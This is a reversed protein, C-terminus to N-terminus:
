PHTLHFPPLKKLPLFLFRATVWLVFPAARVERASSPEGGRSRTDRESSACPIPVCCNGGDTRNLISDPHTGVHFEEPERAVVQFGQRRLVERNIPNLECCHLTYDERGLGAYLERVRRAVAGDGASPELIRLDPLLYQCVHLPQDHRYGECSNRDFLRFGYRLLDESVPDPSPFFAYSNQPPMQGSAQVVELAQTPDYSFLFAQSGTNWRGGLRACVEKVERYVKEPLEERILFLRSVNAAYHAHKLADLAQSSLHTTM